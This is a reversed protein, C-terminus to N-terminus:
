SSEHISGIVMYIPCRELLKKKTTPALTDQYPTNSLQVHVRPFCLRSGNNLDKEIGYPIHQHTNAYFTHFKRMRTQQAFFENINEDHRIENNQYFKKTRTQKAQKISLFSKLCSFLCLLCSPQFLLFFFCGVGLRGM